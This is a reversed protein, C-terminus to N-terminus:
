AAVDVRVARRRGNKEKEEALMGRLEKVARMKAEMERRAEGVVGGATDDDEDEDAGARTAAFLAAAVLQDRKTLPALPSLVALTPDSATSALSPFASLGSYTSGSLFRVQSHAGLSDSFLSADSCAPLRVGFPLSPPVAGGSLHPFIAEGTTLDKTEGKLRVM